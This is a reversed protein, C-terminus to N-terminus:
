FNCCRDISCAKSNKLHEERKLTLSSCRTAGGMDTQRDTADKLVTVVIVKSRIITVIIKSVVTTNTIGKTARSVDDGTM